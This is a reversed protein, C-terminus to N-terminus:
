MISSRLGLLAAQFDAILSPNRIEAINKCLEAGIYRKEGEMTLRNKMLAIHLCRQRLYRAEGRFEAM